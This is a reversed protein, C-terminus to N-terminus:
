RKKTKSKKKKQLEKQEFDSLLRRISTVQQRLSPEEADHQLLTLTRQFEEEGLDTLGDKRRAHISEVVAGYLLEASNMSDHNSGDDSECRSSNRSCITSTRSRTSKESRKTSARSSEAISAKEEILQVAPRPKADELDSQLCRAKGTIGPIFFSSVPKDSQIAGIESDDEDDDTENVKKAVVDRLVDSTTSQTDQTIATLQSRVSARKHLAFPLEPSLIQNAKPLSLSLLRQKQKEPHKTRPSPECQENM